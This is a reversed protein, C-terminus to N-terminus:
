KKETLDIMVAVSKPIYDIDYDWDSIEQVARICDPRLTLTFGKATEDDVVGSYPTPQQIGSIYSTLLGDHNDILNNFVDLTVGYIRVPSHPYEVMMGELTGRTKDNHYPTFKTAWVATRGELITTSMGDVQTVFAKVANNNRGLNNIGLNTIGKLKDEFEKPFSFKTTDPSALIKKKDEATLGSHGLSTTTSASSTKAAPKKPPQYRTYSVPPIIEVKTKTMDKVNISRKSIPFSWVEGVPLSEIRDFGEPMKTLTDRELLGKLMWEESSWTITDGDKDFAISLPRESNRVFNLTNEKEDLWVLAFAGRLKPIIDMPDNEEFSKCIAESDVTFTGKTLSYHTTLSGNHMLTIHGHSFPHANQHAGAAGKTAHRNHGALVTLDVDTRTIHSYQPTLAYMDAPFAMKDHEYWTTGATNMEARMIGTAHKGRFVDVYLLQKFIEIKRLSVDGATGILGCM